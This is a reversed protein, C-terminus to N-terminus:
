GSEEELLLTKLDNVALAPHLYSSSYINRVRKQRDVLYVKLVHSFNGTPQGSEDLEPVVTQGFGDLIPQLDDWSATTLLAWDREQWPTALYEPGRHRLIAEPTDRKPDFSLTILRVRGSLRPDAELDQQILHFNATALPCGTADSCNLYVFSLLVDRGNMYDSLRRATGDADLVKGDVAPQIPPLEYSGPPPPVYALGAPPAEASGRVASDAPGNRGCGVVLLLGLALGQSAGHWGPRM